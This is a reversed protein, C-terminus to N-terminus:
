KETLQRQIVNIQIYCSRFFRTKFSRTIFYGICASIGWLNEKNEFLFIFVNFFLRFTLIVMECLFPFYLFCSVIENGVAFALLRVEHFQFLFQDRIKTLSTSLRISFFGYISSLCSSKLYFFFSRLNLIIECRSSIIYIYTHTNPSHM